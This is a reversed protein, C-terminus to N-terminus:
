YRLKTQTKRKFGIRSAKVMGLLLNFRELDGSMKMYEHHGKKTLTLGEDAYSIYGSKELSELNRYIAREQKSVAGMGKVVDIFEAKLVSVKLPASSFRRDTERLFQGLIFLMERTKPTLVM